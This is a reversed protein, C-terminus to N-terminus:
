FRRAMQAITAARQQDAGIARQQRLEGWIAPWAADFEADTGAYRLRVTRRAEQEEAAATQAHHDQRRQEREDREAQQRADIRANAAEVAARQEEQRQRIEAGTLYRTQGNEVVWKGPPPPEEPAAPAAPRTLYDLLSM